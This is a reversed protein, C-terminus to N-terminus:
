GLLYGDRSITRTIYLAMLLYNFALIVIAFITATLPRQQLRQFWYALGIAFLGTLELFSRAGFSDGFWWNHWASNAYWLLVASMLWAGIMRERARGILEAIAILLAPCWFFVGHRSSFLTQWLKPEGWYFREISYSYHVWAGSMARWILLQAAAPVLAVVMAAPWRRLTRVWGFERASVIATLLVIPLLHLNTPRCIIAMAWCFAIKVWFWRGDPRTMAAIAVVATCWFTSVVHVMFPERFAYFAYPTGIAILIAAVFTPGPQIAFHRHMLRDILLLTHYVMFQILVLCSVQYPWSYGDAPILGFGALAILHGILFAPLLTLALGVPYKNQVMGTATRQELLDPRFDGGWHDTMQNAFDVDGDIIVSPLYAYYFRADSVILDFQRKLILSKAAALVLALAFFGGALAAYARQRNVDNAVFTGWAM